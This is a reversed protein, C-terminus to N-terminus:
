ERGLGALFAVLDDLEANTFVNGYAPMLSRDPEIRYVKLESKQHSHLKGSRDRFQVSFTDEAVILGSMPDGDSAQVIITRYAAAVNEQPAVLKRRLYEAGRLRGVRSLDPGFIGGEVGISHCALCGGRERLLAEGRERDGRVESPPMEGFGQLYGIVYLIQQINMTGDFGPMGGDRIGWRITQLLEQDRNGARTMLGDLRPGRGGAGSMGHCASCHVEYHDRGLERYDATQKAVSHKLLMWRRELKGGLDDIVLFAVAAAAIVAATTAVSVLTLVPRRNM